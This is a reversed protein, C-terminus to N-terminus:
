APPPSLYFNWYAEQHEWRYICFITWTLHRLMSIKKGQIKRTKSLRINHKEGEGQLVMFRSFKSFISLLAWANQNTLQILYTLPTSSITVHYYLMKNSTKCYTNYISLNFGSALLPSKCFSIIISSFLQFCVDLASHSFKERIWGKKKTEKIALFDNDEENAANFCLALFCLLIFQFLSSNSTAVLVWNKRFWWNLNTRVDERMHQTKVTEWHSAFWVVTWDKEQAWILITPELTLFSSSGLLRFNQLYIGKQCSVQDPVSWWHIWTGYYRKEDDWSM